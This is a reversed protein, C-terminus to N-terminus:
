RNRDRRVFMTTGVVIFVVCVVLTITLDLWMPHLVAAAYEPKGAYFINRALDISYTMPMLKSLLGLLGDSNVMPILAGSLFMQPFVLLAVGLGAVKPDNVFGIFLVGLAGGAIALIPALALVRLLDGPDMPIQMVFIMALVGILAIMSAFAAGLMKGVLVTYRSVPAVFFEATFDNEREEVLNTVGTITGQYLTNAIMGILMYPLYAFPLSGGLNQSISGGMIGMFIVPIIVVVAISVPNRVASLIERWAIAFTANLERMLRSQIGITAQDSTVKAALEATM